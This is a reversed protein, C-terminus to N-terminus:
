YQVLYTCTQIDRRYKYMCTGKILIHFFCVNFSCDANSHCGGNRADCPMQCVHGDGLMGLVCKCTVNGHYEDCTANVHCGGNNYNCSRGAVHLCYNLFYCAYVIYWMNIISVYLKFFSLKAKWREDDSM